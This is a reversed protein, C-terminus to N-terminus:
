LASTTPAQPLFVVVASPFPAGHTSQGFRLRGRIFTVHGRMAYEHWWRTDTRAPVLCVVTSGRVCENWAKAMWEGIKRGYPPNMWCVPGDKLWDQELGDVERTYFKDCKANAPSACVDLNFPGYRDSMELFFALPTEWEDTKSSLLGRNM